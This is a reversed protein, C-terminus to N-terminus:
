SVQEALEEGKGEMIVNMSSGSTVTVDHIYTNRMSFRCLADRIPSLRCSTRTSLKLQLRRCTAVLEPLCCAGSSSSAVIVIPNTM